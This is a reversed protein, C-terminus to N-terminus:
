KSWPLFCTGRLKPSLIWKKLLPYVHSLHFQIEVIRTNKSGSFFILFVLPIDRFTKPKIQQTTKQYICLQWKSFIKISFSTDRNTKSIQKLFFNQKPFFNAKLFFKSQSICFSYWLFKGQKGKPFNEPTHMSPDDFTDVLIAGMSNNVEINENPSIQAAFILLSQLYLTFCSPRSGGAHKADEWKPLSLKKFSSLTKKKWFVRKMM